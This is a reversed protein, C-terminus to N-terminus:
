QPTLTCSAWCGTLTYTREGSTTDFVYISSPPAGFYYVSESGPIYLNGTIQMYPYMILGPNGTTFFYATGGDPDYASLQLCITSTFNGWGDVTWGCSVMGDIQAVPPLGDDNVITGSGQSDSITAGNAASSLNLLVTENPEVTTDPTTAVAVTKSTEGSAFTLTGSTATYDSGATATGNATAYSVNHSQSTAGAKTVTFVLSGGETVSPDNVSFAPGADNNTITGVGQSDTITAGNTPSSLNILVTESLEYISDQTTTVTVTKTTQGSTFTLTGSAATYDSASATGNATAYSVNNSQATSGSRTVTFVLSGGEAVSVDNVSFTVAAADDNLITGVGQSDTITAGGTPSSLNVYLTEDAEVNSDQTTVVSVTKTSQGSTFTLTGSTATYDSGATASGNATAYNVSHSGGTAGSRTVTFVLTGGETVSVDDVSLNTVAAISNVQTRNGNADYAYDVVAGDDHVVQKLRGLEDYQYTASWSATAAGLAILAALVLTL